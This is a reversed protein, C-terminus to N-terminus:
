VFLTMPGSRSLGESFPGRSTASKLGLSTWLFYSRFTGITGLWPPTWDAKVPIRSVDAWMTTHDRAQGWWLVLSDFGCLFGTDRSSVSSPVIMKLARVRKWMQAAHLKGTWEGVPRWILDQHEALGERKMIGVWCFIYFYSLMVGPDKVDLKEADKDLWM